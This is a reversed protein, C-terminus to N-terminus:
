RIRTPRRLRRWTSPLLPKLARFRIQLSPLRAFILADIVLTGTATVNGNFGAYLKFESRAECGMCEQICGRPTQVVSVVDLPGLVREMTQNVPMSVSPVAAVPQEAVVPSIEVTSMVGGRPEIV